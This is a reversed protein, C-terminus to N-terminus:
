NGTDPILKQVDNPLFSRIAGAFYAVGEDFAPTPATISLNFLRAPTEDVFLYIRREKLASPEDGWAVTAIGYLWNDRKNSSAELLQLISSADREAQIRQAVYADIDEPIDEVVQSTVRLIPPSDSGDDQVFVYSSADVIDDPLDLQFGGGQFNAM